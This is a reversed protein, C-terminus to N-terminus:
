FLDKMLWWGTRPLSGSLISRIQPAARPVPWRGCGLTRLDKWLSLKPGTGRLCNRVWLLGLLGSALPMSSSIPTLTIIGPGRHIERNQSVRPTTVHLYVSSPGPRPMTKDKLEAQLDGTRRPGESGTWTPLGPRPFLQEGLAGPVGKKKEEQKNWCWEVGTLSHSSNQTRQVSALLSLHHCGSSCPGQHLLDEEGDGGESGAGRGRGRGM